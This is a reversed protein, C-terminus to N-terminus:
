RLVDNWGAVGSIIIASETELLGWPFRLFLRCPHRRYLLGKPLEIKASPRVCGSVIHSVKESAFEERGNTGGGNAVFEM